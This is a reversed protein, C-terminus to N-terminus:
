KRDESPASVGHINWSSMPVVTAIGFVAHCLDALDYGPNDPIRIISTRRTPDNFDFVYDLDIPDKEQKQASVIAKVPDNEFADALLPRMWVYAVLKAWNHTDLYTPVSNSDNNKTM